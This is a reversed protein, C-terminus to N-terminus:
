ASASRLGWRDILAELRKEGDPVLRYLDAKGWRLADLASLMDDSIAVDLMRLEFLNFKFASGNYTAALFQAIMQIQGSDRTEALNILRAYAQAAKAQAAAGREEYSQLRAELARAEDDSLPDNFSSMHNCKITGLFFGASLGPLGV